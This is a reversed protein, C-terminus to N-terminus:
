RFCERTRAAARRGYRWRLLRMKAKGIVRVPVDREPIIMKLGNALNLVHLSNRLVGRDRVGHVEEINGKVEPTILLDGSGAEVKLRLTITMNAPIQGFETM